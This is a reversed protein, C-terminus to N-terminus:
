QSGSNEIKRLIHNFEEIHDKETELINQLTNKIDEDDIHNIAYHINAILIETEKINDKIFVLPDSTYDIFRTSWPIGKGNEIYPKAGLSIIIRSIEDTSELKHEVITNLMKSLPLDLFPVQYSYQVITTWLNNKGGLLNRLIQVTRKNLMASNKNQM